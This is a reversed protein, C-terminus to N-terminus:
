LLPTLFSDLANNDGTYLHTSIGLSSAADINEKRDDIFFTDEPKFGEKEMIYRWFSLEPKCRHIENSLYVGDFLPYLEPMNENTWKNYCDFTNSGIVVRHDRAKLNKIKAIMHENLKPNYNDTFLESNIKVGYKNELHRYYNETSCWGEMLAANYLKYDQLFDDVDVGLEKAMSRLSRCDMMVVDGLDFIVLM